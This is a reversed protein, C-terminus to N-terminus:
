SALIYTIMEYAAAIWLAAIVVAGIWHPLKWHEIIRAVLSKDHGDNSSM